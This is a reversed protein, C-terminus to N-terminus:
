EGGPTGPGVRSLEDDVPRDKPKHYGSYIRNAARSNDSM